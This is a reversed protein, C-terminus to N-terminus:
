GGGRAGGGRDWGDSVEAVPAVRSAAWVGKRRVEMRRAV